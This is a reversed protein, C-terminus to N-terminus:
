SVFTWATQELMQHFRSFMRQMHAHKYAFPEAPDLAHVIAAMEVEFLLLRGDPAEACDIVVYDLGLIASIEAFAERHRHAFGDNFDAMSSAEEARKQSSELMGANAYHIMRESSIAMHCLFPAGQILAVRRKRYFGDTDRYDIFQTLTFRPPSILGLYVALEDMSHLLELCHGAHSFEPRVLMPWAAGPLLESIEQAAAILDRGLTIAQPALVKGSGLFRKALGERSLGEIDGGLARAPHNLVPRPWTSVQLVVQRLLDRRSDSILCIALDHEPLSSPLDEGLAVFLLDLRVPLNATIFEIPLNTQLDGEAVLGLLRLGQSTVSYTPSVLNPTVRFLRAQLLM